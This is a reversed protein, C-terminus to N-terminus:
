NTREGIQRLVDAGIPDIGSAANRVEPSQSRPASTPQRGNRKGGASTQTPPQPLPHRAPQFPGRSAHHPRLLPRLPHTPSRLSSPSRAPAEVREQQAETPGPGAAQENKIKKGAGGLNEPSPRPTEKGLAPYGPARGEPGAAPSCTPPSAAPSPHTRAPPATDPGRSTPTPTRTRPRLM